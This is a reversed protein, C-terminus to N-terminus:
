RTTQDRYQSQAVIAEAKIGSAFLWLSKNEVKSTVAWDKKLVGSENAM